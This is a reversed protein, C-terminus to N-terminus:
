SDRKPGEGSQFGRRSGRVLATYDAIFFEYLKFSPWITLGHWIAHSDLQIEPIFIDFLEFSMSLGTFVVLMIPTISLKYLSLYKNNRHKLYNTIGLTILMIYQLLGFFINFRMNYTYSWDFYLRLIHASFILICVLFGAFGYRKQKQKDNGLLLRMSVAYFGSLVTGGAFFYDLKETILLDRFHFVASFFWAFCGMVAVLRYNSLLIDNSSNKQAVKNLKFLALFHPIFNGVSFLTSWFEQMYLVRVFPWKGHFQVLREDSAGNAIRKQLMSTTLQQCEYDCLSECDWLLLRDLFRPSVSSRSPLYKTPESLDVDEDLPPNVALCFEQECHYKCQIQEPFWDGPSSAVPSPKLLLFAALIATSLSKKM